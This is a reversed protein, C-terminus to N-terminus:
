QEPKFRIQLNRDFLNPNDPTPLPSAKYVAAEISRQVAADGNCTAISVGVVEGGPVQRVNVVCDLGQQASAPKVWNRQVAQQIAYIYRALDGSSMAELMASEAALEADLQRRKEAEQAERKLRDNELRQRELEEKRKREAEERRREKEAEERKRREEAEEKRRKEADAEEKRVREQEIRLDEQRKQEEAEKRAIEVPDPPPPEEIEPEEVVPEPEPEEIVPEPEPEEAVPEPEPEPEKVPPRVVQDDSVLTAKIALPVAPYPPQSFDFVFLVGGVVLVHLLLAFFTPIINHTDRIM